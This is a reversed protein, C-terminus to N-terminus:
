TMYSPVGDAVAALLEAGAGNGCVARLSSGSASKLVSLLLKALRPYGQGMRLLHAGTTM